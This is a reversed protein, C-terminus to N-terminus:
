ENVYSSYDYQRRISRKLFYVAVFRLVNFSVYGADHAEIAILLEHYNLQNESAEVFESACPTTM